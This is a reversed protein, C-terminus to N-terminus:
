NLEEKLKWMTIQVLCQALCRGRHCGEASLARSLKTPGPEKLRPQPSLGPRPGRKLHFYLGGIKRTKIPNEHGGSEGSGGDFVIHFYFIKNLHWPV